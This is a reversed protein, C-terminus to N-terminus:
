LSVADTDTYYKCPLNIYIYLVVSVCLLEIHQVSAYVYM